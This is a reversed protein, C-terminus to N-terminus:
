PIKEALAIPRHDHRAHTLAVEGTMRVALRGQRRDPGALGATM